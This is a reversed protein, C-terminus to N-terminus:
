VNQIHNDEGFPIQVACLHTPNVKWSNPHTIGHQYWTNYGWLRAGPASTKRRLEVTDELAGTQQDAMLRCYIPKATRWRRKSHLYLLLERLVDEHGRHVLRLGEYWGWEQAALARSLLRLPM